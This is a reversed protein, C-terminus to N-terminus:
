RGRAQLHYPLEHREIVVVEEVREGHRKHSEALERSNFLMPTHKLRHRKWTGDKRRIAFVPTSQM